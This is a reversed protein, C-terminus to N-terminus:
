TYNYVHTFLIISKGINNCQKVIWSNLNLDDFSKIEKKEAM